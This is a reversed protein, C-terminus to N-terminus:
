NIRVGSVFDEAYAFSRHLFPAIPWIEQVTINKPIKLAAALSGSGLALLDACVEKALALGSPTPTDQSGWWITSAFSCPGTSFMLESDIIVFEHKKTFLRGPPENGGFLCAALESKPWDIIHEVSLDVVDEIAQIPKGLLATLGCGESCPPYVHEDLFWHAGHVEGPRAGIASASEKDLRMFVSSQCSWGMQQALRAFVIERYARFPGGLKTLWRNGQSDTGLWFNHSPASPPDFPQWIWGDTDVILPLDRILPFSPM